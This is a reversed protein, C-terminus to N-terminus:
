KVHILYSKVLKPGEFFVLAQRGKPLTGTIEFLQESKYETKLDIAKTMDPFLGKTEKKDFGKCEQHNSLPAETLPVVKATLIEAGPQYTLVKLDTSIQAPPPLELEKKTKIDAFQLRYSLQIDKCSAEWNQWKNPVKEYKGNTASYLGPEYDQRSFIFVNKTANLEKETVSVPEQTKSCKNKGANIKYEGPEIKEFRFSGDASKVQYPTGELWVTSNGVPQGSFPDLVQGTITGKKCSVLGFAMLGTLFLPAIRKM